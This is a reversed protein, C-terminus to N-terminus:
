IRADDRVLSIAKDVRAILRRLTARAEALKQPTDALKHSLTLYEIDLSMRKTAKESEELRLQLDAVEERARKLAQRAEDRQTALTEIQRSLERIENSFSSEM